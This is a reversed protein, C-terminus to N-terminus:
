SMQPCDALGLARARRCEEIRDERELRDWSAKLQKRRRYWAFAVVPITILFPISGDSVLPSWVFRGFLGGRWEEELENLTVGYADLVAANFGRGSRLHTLLQKFQNSEADHFRLYTVFDRSAAYAVQVEEDTGRFDRELQKLPPVGSGFVASAMTNARNLNVGKGLSDAVGEHFWRPVKAGGSAQHLAVHGLEHRTLPGLDSKAGDPQHRAVIIEGKRPSAVGAAWGPMSTADAVKGSHTVFYITMDDDLDLGVQNEIDEWWGPLQRALEHADARLSPDYRLVMRGVHVEQTASEVSWGVPEGTHAAAPRALALGLALVLVAPLM